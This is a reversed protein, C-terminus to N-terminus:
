SIVRKDAEQRRHTPRFTEGLLVNRFMQVEHGRIIFRWTLCLDLVEVSYEINICICCTSGSTRQVTM